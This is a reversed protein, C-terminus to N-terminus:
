ITIFNEDLYQDLNIDNYSAFRPTNVRAHHLTPPVLNEEDEDYGEHSAETFDESRNKIEELLLSCPGNVIIM